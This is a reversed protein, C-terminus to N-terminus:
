AAIFVLAASSSIKSSIAAEKILLYNKMPRAQVPYSSPESRFINILYSTHIM